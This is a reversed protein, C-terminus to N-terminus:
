EIEFNTQLLDGFSIYGRKLTEIASKMATIKKTTVYDSSIPQLLVVENPKLSNLVVPSHTSILITKEESFKRILKILDIIAKPHLYSEPEEIALSGDKSRFSFLAVLLGLIMNTGMSLSKPPFIRKKQNFLIFKLVQPHEVSTNKKSIKNSDTEFLIIDDIDALTKLWYKFEEYVDKNNSINKLLGFLAFHDIITGTNKKYTQEIRPETSDILLKPNLRILDSTIFSKLFKALVPYNREFVDAERIEIAQLATMDFKVNFERKGRRTEYNLNVLGENNRKFLMKKKGSKGVEKINCEESTIKGNNKQLGANQMFRKPPDIELIYELDWKKGKVKLQCYIIFKFKSLEDKKIIPVWNNFGPYTGKSIILQRDSDSGSIFISIFQMVELLNSKGVGNCGTLALIGNPELTCDKLNKYGTVYLKKLIMICIKQRISIYICQNNLIVNTIYVFNKDLQM